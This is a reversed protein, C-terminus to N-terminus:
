VLYWVAWGAGALIVGLAIYAWGPFHRSWEDQAEIYTLLLGIPMCVIVGYLGLWLVKRDPGFLAYLLLAAFAFHMTTFALVNQIARRAVYRARGENGTMAM